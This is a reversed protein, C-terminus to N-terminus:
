QNENDETNSGQKQETLLVVLVILITTAASLYPSLNAMTDYFEGFAPGTNGPSQTRLVYTAGWLAIIQALAMIRIKTLAKAM